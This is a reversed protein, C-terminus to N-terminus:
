CGTARHLRNWSQKGSWTLKMSRGTAPVGYSYDPNEQGWRTNSGICLYGMVKMGERHGLWVMEPLFDHQLGPQTPVPGNKYWAYGNCSVIFTQIVNVGLDKYWKIHEKPDADAWLGPAAFANPGGEGWNFDICYGKIPEDENSSQQQTACGALLLLLTYNILPFVYRKM